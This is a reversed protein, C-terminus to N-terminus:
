NAETDRSVAECGSSCTWQYYLARAIPLAVDDCLQRPNWETPLRVTPCYFRRGDDGARWIYGGERSVSAMCAAWVSDEAM